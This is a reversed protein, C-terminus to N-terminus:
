FGGSLTVGLGDGGVAPVVTVRERRFKKPATLYLYSGVGIAVVGAAFLGTGWTRGIEAARDADRTANRVDIGADVLEVDVKFRQAATYSVAFSTGWFVIASAAVLTGLRRRSYGPDITKIAPESDVTVSASPPADPVPNRVDFPDAHATSVLLGFMVCVLAGRM